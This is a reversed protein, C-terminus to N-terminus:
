PVQIEEFLPQLTEFVQSRLPAYYNITDNIVVVGTLKRMFSGLDRVMKGSGNEYVAVHMHPNFVIRGNTTAHEPGWVIDCLIIYDAGEVSEPIADAPLM